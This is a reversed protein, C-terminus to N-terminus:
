FRFQDRTKKRQGKIGKLLPNWDRVRQINSQGFRKATKDCFLKKEM